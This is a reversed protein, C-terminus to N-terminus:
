LGEGLKEGEGEGDGGMYLKPDNADFASKRESLAGTQMGLVLSESEGPYVSLRLKGGDEGRLPKLFTICVHVVVSFTHQIM